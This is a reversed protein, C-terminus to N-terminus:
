KVLFGTLLPAALSLLIIFSVLLITPIEYKLIFLSIFVSTTFLIYIIINLLMFTVPHHQDM